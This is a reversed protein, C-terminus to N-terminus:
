WATIVTFGRTIGDTMAQLVETVQEVGITREVLRTPDLQGAAVLSLLGPYSTTPCGLSGLFTIEQLVMADAPIGIVGRDDKGTLGLQLHRGGKTLSLIGAITTGSSGVADVAVDVGGGTAEKVDHAATPSAKLTVAAGETKAHALKDDSHSVAVVRAGLTSAIQVASLGVAGIGFVAVWEGPRIKAQDVLGHYATMFRCGLAAAALSDVADPLAVLNVDANPVCVYQGYGGSRHVGVLGYALCLNSRGSFCYQCRGCALHFPVTVRDGPRFRQIESGVVEVVGGLEHGPVAPLSLEVGAWTLDQQWLHWDSRCVGCAEVRVIADAPGATPDPVQEVSLPERFRTLVAARM